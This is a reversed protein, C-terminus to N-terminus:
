KSVSVLFGIPLEVLFLLRPFEPQFIASATM